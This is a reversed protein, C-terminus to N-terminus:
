SLSSFEAWVVKLKEGTIEQAGRHTNIVATLLKITYPTM